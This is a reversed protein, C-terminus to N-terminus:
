MPGAADGMPDSAPMFGARGPSNEGSATDDACIPQLFMRGYGSKLPRGRRRLVSGAPEQMM